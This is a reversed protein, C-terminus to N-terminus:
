GILNIAVIVILAVFTAVGYLLLVKVVMLAERPSRDDQTTGFNSFQRTLEVVSSGRAWTAVRFRPVTHQESPNYIRSPASGGDGL